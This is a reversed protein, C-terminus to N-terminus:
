PANGGVAHGEGGVGGGDADRHRRHRALHPRPHRADSIFGESRECVWEVCRGFRKAAFTVAAEEADHFQKVGFGGGVDPAVVRLRHQPINLVFAGMLMRVVHPFQSTTWLTYQGASSEVDAIAARPEMRNGVLRNNVLKLKAVHYATAFAADTAASDGISWDRRLNGPVDDFIQPAGPAIAAELDVAAPLPTYDM